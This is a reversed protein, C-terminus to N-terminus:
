TGTDGDSHIVAADSANRAIHKLSAQVGCFGKLNPLWRKQEPLVGVL